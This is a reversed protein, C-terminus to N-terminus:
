LVPKKVLAPPPVGLLECLKNRLPRLQDVTSIDWTTQGLIKDIEELKDDNEDEILHPNIQLAEFLKTATSKRIRPYKHCLFISLQVMCKQRATSEEAPLLACLVDAASMIKNPDSCPAAGAGGCVEKKILSFLEFAFKSQEDLLIPDLHGSIILRETFKFLPVTIRDVRQNQEFIHRLTDCFIKLDTESTFKGEESQCEKSAV